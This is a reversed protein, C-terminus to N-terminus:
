LDSNLSKASIKTNKMIFLLKALYPLTLNKSPIIRVPM